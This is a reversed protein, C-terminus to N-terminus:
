FELSINCRQYSDGLDTLNQENENFFKKERAKWNSLELREERDDGNEWHVMGILKLINKLNCKFM